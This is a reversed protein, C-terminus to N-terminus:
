PQGRRDSVQPRARSRTRAADRDLLRSAALYRRVNVPTPEASLDLVANRFATPGALAAMFTVIGCSGESRMVSFTWREYRSAAM